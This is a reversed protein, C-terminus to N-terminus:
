SAGRILDAAKEAIMYTPANTYGRVITPMISADVVRLGTVGRVRLQDDVVAMPDTGMKCTGAPHFHSSLHRRLHTTLDVGPGPHRLEGRYADFPTSEVIHRALGLGVLIAQEDAPDSLYNAKILPHGFPGLSQLCISGSSKPALLVTHISFSRVAEVNDIIPGVGLELDPAELGPRSPVIAAAEPVPTTMPNRGHSIASLLARKSVGSLLLSIPRKLVYELGIIAHDQLNQGVGPLDVKVAIGFEKLHAAPGLGSIMLLQPSSIAGCSLIVERSAEEVRTLFEGQMFEVGAAKDGKFLLRTARAQTAVTLNSRTLAPRLWADAASWRVGNKQTMQLLGIGQHRVGNFDPNPELGLLVAAELFAKTLPHPEGPDAVSLPGGQGHFEDRIRENHESKKFYPLVNKWGWGKNGLQEWGDFDARNGRLYVTANMSSSGGLGSGRPWFVQRGDLQDEPATMYSWDMDSWFLEPFANPDMVGHGSDEPTGIELLLVKVTPDETLRNALVCGASGAGVIIYDFM